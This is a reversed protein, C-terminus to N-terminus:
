YVFDKNLTEEYYKELLEEPNNQFVLCQRKINLAKYPCGGLCSYFMLCDKCDKNFYGFSKIMYDSEVKPNRFKQDALSLVAKEKMGVDDWCKYMLGYPDIVYNNLNQAGCAFCGRCSPYEVPNKIGYNHELRILYNKEEETNFQIDSKDLCGNSEYIIGYYVYFFDGYRDEFYKKIEPYDAENSKDINVRIAVSPSYFNQKCYSFLVDLNEVIRTYSDLNTVHPRRKNHSNKNGDLTIQINRMDIKHFYRIVDETLLYGNTVINQTLNIERENAAENFKKIFDLSLLPEGGYWEININKKDKAFDFIKSIMENKMMYPNRANKEYCYACRFNCNLTPAITFSLSNNEAQKKLWKLLFMNDFEEDTYKSLVGTMKFEKLLEAPLEASGSLYDDLKLKLDEDLQFFSNSLGAYLLWGYKKSKFLLNRKSWKLAESNMKKVGIKNQNM